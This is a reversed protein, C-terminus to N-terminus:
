MIKQPARPAAPTSKKAPTDSDRASTTNTITNTIVKAMRYAPNYGTTSLSLAGFVVVAAVITLAREWGLRAATGLGVAVSTGLTAGIALPLVYASLLLVVVNPRTPAREGETNPRHLSSSIRTINVVLASALAVAVATSLPARHLRGFAAIAAAAVGAVLIAGSVGLNSILNSLGEDSTAFDTLAFPVVAAVIPLILAIWTATGAMKSANVM